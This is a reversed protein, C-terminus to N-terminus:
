KDNSQCLISETIVDKWKCANKEWKSVFVVLANIWIACKWVGKM